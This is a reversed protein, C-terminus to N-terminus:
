KANMVIAISKCYNDLAQHIALHYFLVQYMFKINCIYMNIYKVVYTCIYTLM